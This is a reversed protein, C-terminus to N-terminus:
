NRIAFIPIGWRLCGKDLAMFVLEIIITRRESILFVMM